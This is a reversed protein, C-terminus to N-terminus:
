GGYKRILAKLDGGIPPLTGEWIITGDPAALMVWPLNHQRARDLFPVLSAPPKGTGKEVVDDPIIGRFDHKETALKRWTPDMLLQRQENTTKAPKEVIAITLKQPVPPIPPVPPPTPDPTPQPTAPTLLYLGIKGSPTAYVLWAQADHTPLLIATANTKDTLPLNFPTQPAPAPTQGSSQPMLAAILLLSLCFTSTRFNTM